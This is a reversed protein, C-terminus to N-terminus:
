ASLAFCDNIKDILPPPKRGGGSLNFFVFYQLIFLLLFSTFYIYTCLYMGLQNHWYLDILSLLLLLLSISTNLGRNSTYATSRSAFFLWDQIQFPCLNLTLFLFLSRKFVVFFVIKWEAKAGRGDQIIFGCSM